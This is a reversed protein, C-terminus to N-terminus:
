FFQRFTGKRMVSTFYRRRQGSDRWTLSRARSHRDHVTEVRFLVLITLPRSDIFSLYSTWADLREDAGDGETPFCPGVREGRM